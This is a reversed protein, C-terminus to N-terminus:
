EKLLRFTTTEADNRVRVLYMGAPVAGLDIDMGNAGDNDATKVMQGQLNYVEIHENASLGDIRVTETFPNPYASLTSIAEDDHMNYKGSGCSLKIFPFLSTVAYKNSVTTTVENSIDSAAAAVTYCTNCIGYYEKYQLVSEIQTSYTAGTTYSTQLPLAISFIGFCALLNNDFINYNNMGFADIYANPFEIEIVKKGSSVEDYIQYRYNLNAQPNLTAINAFPTAINFNINYSFLPNPTVGMNYAFILNIPNTPDNSLRWGNSNTINYFDPSTRIIAKYGANAPNSSVNMAIDTIIGRGYNGCNSCITPNTFLFCPDRPIKSIPEVFTQISNGVSNTVIYDTGNLKAFTRATLPFSIEVKDVSSISIAPKMRFVLQVDVIEPTTTTTGKLILRAKKLFNSVSLIKVPSNAINKLELLNDKVYNPGIQKGNVIIQHLYFSNFIWDFEVGFETVGQSLPVNDFKVPVVYFTAGDINNPTTTSAPPLYTIPDQITTSITSTPKSQIDINLYDTYPIWGTKGFYPNPVRQLAITNSTNTTITGAVPTYIPIHTQGTGVIIKEGKVVIPNGKRFIHAWIAHEGTTRFTFSILEDLKGCTYQGNSTLYYVLVNNKEELPINDSVIKIDFKNPMTASAAIYAQSLDANNNYARFYYNYNQALLLAPTIFLLILGLFFHWYYKM